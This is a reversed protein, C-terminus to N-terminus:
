IKPDSYSDRSKESPNITHKNAYFFFPFLILLTVKVVEFTQKTLFYTSLWRKFLSTAGVHSKVKLNKKEEYKQNKTQFLKYLLSDLCFIINKKMDYANM